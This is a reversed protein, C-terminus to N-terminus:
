RSSLEFLEAPLFLFPTLLDAHKVAKYGIQFFHAIYRNLEAAAQPVGKDLLQRDVRVSSRFEQEPVSRYYRFLQLFALGPFSFDPDKRADKNM